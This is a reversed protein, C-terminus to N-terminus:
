SDPKNHKVHYEITGDIKQGAAHNQEEKHSFLVDNYIIYAVNDKNM